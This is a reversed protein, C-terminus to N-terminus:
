GVSRATPSVDQVQRPRTARPLRTLGFFPRLIPSRRILEFSVLCGVMTAVILTAAEVSIPLQLPRVVWAIAMIITQHVIYFPFIAETLYRRAPHDFGCLLTAGWALAAGTCLWQSAGYAVRLLSVPLEPGTIGAIMLCLLVLYTGLATAAAGAWAWRRAILGNWAPGSRALAFGLLYAAISEAHVTWDGVFAHTEPYHPAVFQQVGVFWAAPVAMLLGGSGARDALSEVFKGARPAVGVILALVMTYPLLYAVFWLHNWTPTTLPDGNAMWGGTGTIYASYFDMMAPQPASWSVQIWTQPPVVVLMGFVLPLLLRPARQRMLQWPSWKRLMFRTAAGSVFFLLTLRWPNVAAMFPQLWVIPRETKIHWEWPVYFMGVHYLILLGFAAIRLWDLDLRRGEIDLKDNM